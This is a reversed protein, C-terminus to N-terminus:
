LPVTVTLAVLPFTVGRSIVEKVFPTPVAVTVKVAEPDWVTVAVSLFLGERVAVLVTVTAAEVVVDVEEVVDDVVVVDDVEVVDDVTGGVVEVDDVEVVRAGVAQTTAGPWGSRDVASTLGALAGGPADTVTLLWPLHKWSASVRSIRRTPPTADGTGVVSLVIVVAVVNPAVAVVIPAVAVVILPAAAVVDTGSPVVVDSWNPRNEVM